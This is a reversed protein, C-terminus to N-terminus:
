INISSSYITNNDWIYIMTFMVEILPSKKAEPFFYKPSNKLAQECLNTKDNVRSDDSNCAATPRYTMKLNHTEGNLVRGVKQNRRDM